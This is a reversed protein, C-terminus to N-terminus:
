STMGIGKMHKEFEGVDGSESERRGGAQSQSKKASKLKERERERRQQVGEIGGGGGLGSKGEEVGKEEGEGEEQKKTTTTDEKHDIEQNPMVTGTSVFNVPKTLNYKKSSLGGKRRKSSSDEDAHSDSDDAFVGYLVDDKTQFHKNKEKRKKYYFEGGIWQGDEYDNEMGFREMHQYEDM